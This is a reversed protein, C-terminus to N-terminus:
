RRDLGIEHAIVNGTGVPIIGLATETGMLTAAAHRITGDGGAAVLADYHGSEAAQRVALRASALNGGQMRTIVGGRQAVLRLVDEVLPSGAVGAGPNEMVFFRRRM